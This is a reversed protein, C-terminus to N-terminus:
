DHESGPDKPHSRYSSEIIKRLEPNEVQSLAREPDFVQQPQRGRTSKSARKWFKEVEEWLALGRPGLWPLFVEYGFAHHSSINQIDEFLGVSVLNELKPDPNELLREIVGFCDAFESTTGNTYQDVLYHALDAMALYWPPTAEKAYQRLFTEWNERFGPVAAIIEEICERSLPIKRSWDPSNTM